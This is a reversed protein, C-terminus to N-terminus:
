PCRKVAWGCGCGDNELFRHKMQHCMLDALSSVDSSTDNQNRQTGSHLNIRCGHTGWVRLIPSRSIFEFITRTANPGDRVKSEQFKQLHGFSTPFNQVPDTCVPDSHFEGNKCYIATTQGQGKTSASLHTFFPSFHASFPSFQTSFPSFQTSSPSFHTFFPFIVGVGDVGVGNLVEWAQFSYCTLIGSLGLPIRWCGEPKGFKGSTGTM